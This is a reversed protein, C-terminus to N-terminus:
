ITRNKYLNKQVYDNFSKFSQFIERAEDIFEEDSMNSYKSFDRKKRQEIVDRVFNNTFLRERYYRPLTYFRNNVRVKLVDDLSCNCYYDIMQETLFNLGLNKSMLTFPPYHQKLFDPLKTRLNVYKTVYNIRKPTIADIKFFGISERKGYEKISWANDVAVRFDDAGCSCFILFHYHPRLTTPGYESVCYYRIKDKLYTRLRKFFLQVDRRSVVPLYNYDSDLGYPLHDDNYTLTVFYSKKHAQQEFALRVFWSKRRNSICASCKGCPVFRFGSSHFEDGDCKICVPNFCQM